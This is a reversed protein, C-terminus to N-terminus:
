LYLGYFKIRPLKGTWNTIPDEGFPTMRLPMNQNVSTFLGVDAWETVHGKGSLASQSFVNFPSMDLSGYRDLNVAHSQFYIRTDNLIYFINVSSTKGSHRWKLKTTQVFFVWWPLKIQQLKFRNSKINPFVSARNTMLNEFSRWTDTAMNQNMSSFLRIITWIAVVFGILSTMQLEMNLILMWMNLIQM